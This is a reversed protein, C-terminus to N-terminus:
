TGPSTGPAQGPLRRVNDPLTRRLRTNEDYQAALRSLATAKFATLEAITSDRDALRTTLTTLKSTLRAIQADRPDAHQGTAHLAQMRREFDERLPAYPRSGYFAARDVRAVAALTKVDCRGSPPIDGSLLQDAAARIRQENLARQEATLRV